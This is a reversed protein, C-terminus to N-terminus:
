LTTTGSSSATVNRGVVKVKNKTRAPKGRIFSLIFDDPHIRADNLLKKMEKNKWPTSHHGMAIRRQARITRFDDGFREAIILRCNHTGLDIAAVRTM